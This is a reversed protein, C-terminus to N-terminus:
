GWNIAIENFYDVIDVAQGIVRMCSNIDTRIYATPVISRERDMRIVVSKNKEPLHEVGITRAPEILVVKRINIAVETVKYAEEVVHGDHESTFGKTQDVSLKTVTAFM